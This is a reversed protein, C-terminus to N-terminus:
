FAAMFFVSFYETSSSEEFLEFILRQFDYSAFKVLVQELSEKYGWLKSVERRLMGVWVSLCGM